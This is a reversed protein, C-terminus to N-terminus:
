IISVFAKSLTAISINFQLISAGAASKKKLAFAFSHILITISM